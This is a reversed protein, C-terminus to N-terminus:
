VAAQLHGRPQALECLSYSVDQQVEVSELMANPPTSDRIVLCSTSLAVTSLRGLYFNKAAGGGMCQLKGATWNKLSQMLGDNRQRGEQPIEVNLGSDGASSKSFVSKMFSTAVENNYTLVIWAKKTVTPLVSCLPPLTVARPEMGWGTVVRHTRQCCLREKLQLLHLHPGHLVPSLVCMAPSGAGM